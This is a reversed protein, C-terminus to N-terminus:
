CITSGSLIALLHTQLKQSAVAPDSDTALVATDDAFTAIPTTPSTQLDATCMLYLLPGLVSGQPVGTHIPSLTHHMSAIKVFFHRNHLYSQRLLFYNLPLSQRLKYL